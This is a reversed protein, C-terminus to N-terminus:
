FDAQITLVMVSGENKRRNIKDELEFNNLAATASLGPTIVYQASVSSTDGAHKKNDDESNAYAAGVSFADSITYGLGYETTGVDKGGKDEETATSVTVLVDYFGVATGYSNTKKSATYDEGNDFGAANVIVDLGRMMPPVTYSVGYSQDAGEDSGDDTNGDTWSLGFQIGNINPSMYTIKENDNYSVNHGVVSTTTTTSNDAPDKTAFRPNYHGDDQGYSGRHTPSWTLFSNHAYDDQGLIVKGFDDKIYVSSEDMVVADSTTSGEETSVSGDAAGELEFKAGFELGTDSVTNFNFLLESDQFTHSDRGQDDGPTDDSISAWGFEYYASINADAYAPAAFSAVAVASVSFFVKRM